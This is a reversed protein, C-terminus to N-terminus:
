RVEGWRMEHLRVDGATEQRKGGISKRGKKRELAMKFRCLEIVSGGGGGGKKRAIGGERSSYSVTCSLM